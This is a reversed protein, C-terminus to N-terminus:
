PLVIVQGPYIIQNETLGNLRCIESIANINGYKEMSIQYLTDGPKIVYSTHVSTEATEESEGQEEKTEEEQKSLAEKQRAKRIDSEEKYFHSTDSDSESNEQQETQQSNTKVNNEESEEAVSPTPTNTPQVKPTVTPYALTVQEEEVGQQENREMEEQKGDSKESIVSSATKVQQDINQMERYNQYFNIGVALVAFALCATAAYSFVSTGGGEEQKEGRKKRNIIKRFNKVAEDEVKEVTEEQIIQKKEIMYTQMMPNKEYYLYYGPQRILFGNEFRFFADEREIPDMLMMVKEGGGFHRLHVRKFLETPELALGPQALFWGVTEQDPFYKEEQEHIKTWMEETFEIHEASVETDEVELAGRIFVYTIGEAWKTEGLFVALVGKRETDEKVKSAIKGLFTYVYDEVYIRYDDCILGIQRINRPITFMGKNGKAEQQEEKYIVEIM